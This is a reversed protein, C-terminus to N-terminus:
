RSRILLGSLVIMFLATGGHVMLATVKSGDINTYVTIMDGIPILSAVCLLGGLLRRGMRRWLCFLFLLGAVVDRTGKARLFAPNPNQDVPVGFGAAASVPAVWFRVGIFIIGLAILVVLWFLISGPRIRDETLM